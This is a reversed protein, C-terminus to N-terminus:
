PTATLRTLQAQARHASSHDPATERLHHYHRIAAERDGAKACADALLMLVGPEPRVDYVKGFAEVAASYDGANYARTGEIFLAQTAEASPTAPRTVTPTEEPQVPEDAHAPGALMTLSLAALALLLIHLRHIM